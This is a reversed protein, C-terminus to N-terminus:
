LTNEVEDGLYNSQIQELTGDEKLEKLAQNM